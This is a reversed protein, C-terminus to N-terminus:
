LRQQSGRPRLKPNVTYPKLVKSGQLLAEGGGKREGTRGTV